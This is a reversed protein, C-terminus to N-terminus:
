DNMGFAPSGGEPAQIYEQEYEPDMTDASEIEHEAQEARGWRKHALHALVWTVLIPYVILRKRPPDGIAAGVVYLTMIYMFLYWNLNSWLHRLMAYLAYPLLIWYLAYFPVSLPEMIRIEGWPLPSLFAQIMGHVSLAALVGGASMRADGLEMFSAVAGTRFAILVIIALAASLSVRAKLNMRSNVIAHMIVAILIMAAVYARFTLIAYLLVLVLCWALVTKHRKRPRLQNEAPRVITDLLAMTFMFLSLLLSDKLNRYNYYIIPTFVIGLFMVGWMALRLGYERCWVRALCSLSTFYLLTKLLRMALMPRSTITWLMGLVYHYGFHISGKSAAKADGVTVDFPRHAEFSATDDYYKQTDTHVDVVIPYNTASVLRYHLFLMITLHSLIVLLVLVKQLFSFSRLIALPLVLALVALLIVVIM